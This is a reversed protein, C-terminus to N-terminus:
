TVMEESIPHSLMAEVREAILYRKNETFLAAIYGKRFAKPSVDKIDYYKADCGPCYFGEETSFDYRKHGNCYALDM